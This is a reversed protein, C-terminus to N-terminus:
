NRSSGLGPPGSAGKTGAIALCQLLMFKVREGGTLNGGKDFFRETPTCTDVLGPNRVAVPLWQTVRPLTGRLEPRGTLTSLM